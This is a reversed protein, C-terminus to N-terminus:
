KGTRLYDIMNRESQHKGLIFCIMGVLAGVAWITTLRDGTIFGRALLSGVSLGSTPIAIEWAVSRKM